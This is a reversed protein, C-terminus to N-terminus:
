PERHTEGNAALTITGKLPDRISTFEVSNSVTRVMVFARIRATPFVDVLRNAAGMITAGRTVVDDVLVIEDAKSLTEVGLSSYHDMAKPRDKPSSSAAKPIAKVRKLCEIVKSGLGRQVLSIAIRQPVWLADQKMLTTRPIPVLIPKNIFFDAFPLRELEQAMRQVLYDSITQNSSLTADNKLMITLDKSRLQIEAGPQPRPTYSLYVGYEIKSIQM